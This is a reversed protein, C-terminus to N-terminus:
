NKLLDAVIKQFISSNETSIKIVDKTRKFWAHIVDPAGKPTNIDHTTKTTRM